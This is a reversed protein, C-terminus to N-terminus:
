FWAGELSKPPFLGGHNQAMVVVDTGAPKVGTYTSSDFPDFDHVVGKIEITPVAILTHLKAYRSDVMAIEANEENQWNNESPYAAYYFRIGLQDVPIEAHRAVETEITHIFSKLQQLSFHAATADFAMPHTPSTEIAQLQNNKYNTVMTEVLAMKLTQISTM